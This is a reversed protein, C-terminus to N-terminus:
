LQENLWDGLEKMNTIWAKDEAAKVLLRKYMNVNQPYEQENFHCQHFNVMIVGHNKAIVSCRSFANDDLHMTDMISLPIEIMGEKTRFPQRENIQDSYGDTSDYKLDICKQFRWTNNEDFHLHHQRISYVPHGIIEELQKKENRLLTEDNYSYFSGHLGIDFGKQDLKRIISTVRAEQLRYRGWFNTSARKATENLFLFTSTVDYQKELSILEDFNWYPEKGSIKQFLSKIQVIPHRIGYYCYHYWQKNIRDVDHTLCLVYPAGDKWIM